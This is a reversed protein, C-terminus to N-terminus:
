SGGRCHQTCTGVNSTIKSVATFHLEKQLSVTQLSNRRMLIPMCDKDFGFSHSTVPRDVLVVGLHLVGLVQCKVQGVIAAERAKM